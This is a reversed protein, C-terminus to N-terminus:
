APLWQTSTAGGHETGVYSHHLESAEKMALELTKKARSTYPLDPATHRTGRGAMLVALLRQRLSASDVSLRDLVTAAVGGGEEILALLMHEPGTYEHHLWAAEKRALALVKRVRETFNYGNM